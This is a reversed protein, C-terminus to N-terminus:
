CTVPGTLYLSATGLDITVQHHVGLFEYTVVAGTTGIYMDAGITQCPSQYTFVIFEERDPSLSFPHFPEGADVIGTREDNMVPHVHSVWPAPMSVRDITVAYRGYNHISFGQTIILPVDRPPSWVSLGYYDAGLPGPDFIRNHVVQGDATKVMVSTGGGLRLPQYTWIGHVVIVTAASLASVLLGSLLGVAFSSRSRRRYRWARRVTVVWWRPGRGFPDYDDQIPPADLQDVVM